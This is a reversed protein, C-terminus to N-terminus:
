MLICKQEATQKLESITAQAKDKITDIDMNQINQIHNLFSEKEEEEDEDEAMMKRLDDPLDIDDGALQVQNEDQESQPLRYKERLHTRLSARQAKKRTFMADREIRENGMSSLILMADKQYCPLGSTEMESTKLYTPLVAM